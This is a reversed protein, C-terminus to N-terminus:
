TSVHTSEAGAEDGRVDGPRAVGAVRRRPGSVGRRFRARVPQARRGPAVSPRRVSIRRTSWRRLRRRYERRASDHSPGRLSSGSSRGSPCRPVRRSPVPSRCRTLAVDTGLLAPPLLMVLGTVGFLFRGRPGAQTRRSPRHSLARYLADTADRRVSVGESLRAPGAPRESPQGRFPLSRSWERSRQRHRANPDGQAATFDLQTSIVGSGPVYAHTSSVFHVQAPGMRNPPVADARGGLRATGM